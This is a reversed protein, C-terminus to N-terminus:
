KKKEKIQTKKGPTEALKIPVEKQEIVPEPEKIKEVKEKEKIVEEFVEWTRSNADANGCEWMINNMMMHGDVLSIFTGKKWEARRVKKGELLALKTESFDM